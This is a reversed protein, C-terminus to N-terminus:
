IEIVEFKNEINEFMKKNLLYEAGIDRRIILTGSNIIPNTDEILIPPTFSYDQMKIGFCNAAAVKEVTVVNSKKIRNLPIFIHPFRSDMTVVFILMPVSLIKQVYVYKFNDLGLATKLQSGTM